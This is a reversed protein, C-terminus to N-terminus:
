VKWPTMRTMPAVADGALMIKGKAHFGHALIPRNFHDLLFVNIHAEAGALNYGVLGAVEAKISLGGFGVAGGIARAFAPEDKMADLFEGGSSCRGYPFTNRWAEDLYGRAEYRKAEEESAFMKGDDSQWAEIKKM